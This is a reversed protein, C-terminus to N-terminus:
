GGAIGNDRLQAFTTESSSNLRIISAGGVTGNSGTLQVHTVNEPPLDTGIAALALMRDISLSTVAHRRAISILNVVDSLTADGSLFQKHLERLVTAQGTSRGIDGNSRSHRDRSYGLTSWGTLRQRGEQLNTSSGRPDSLRQEVTVRVGGIEDIFQTLGSFTTLIWDDIEVGTLGEVTAVMNEPGDVLGANIRTQGRGPVSVLSDRPFSVISVHQRDEAISILQIADARGHLGDTGRGSSGVGHAPDSDSGMVLIHYAGDAVLSEVWTNVFAQGVVPMAAVIALALVFIRTKSRLRRRM